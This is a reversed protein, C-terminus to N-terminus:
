GGGADEVSSEYACCEALEREAEQLSFALKGSSRLLCTETELQAAASYGRGSKKNRM